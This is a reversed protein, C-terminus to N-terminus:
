HGNTVRLRRELLEINRRRNFSLCYARDDGEYYAWTAEPSLPLEDLRAHLQQFTANDLREPDRADAQKLEAIKARAYAKYAENM